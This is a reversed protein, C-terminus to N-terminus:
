TSIYTRHLERVYAVKRWVGQLHIRLEAWQSTASYVAMLYDTILGGEDEILRYSELPLDDLDAEKIPVKTKGRGKKGKKGKKKKGQKQRASQVPMSPENEEDEEEDDAGLVELDLTSFNNAFIVDEPDEEEVNKAEDTQRDSATSRWSCGGLM